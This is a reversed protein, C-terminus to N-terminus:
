QDNQQASAAASSAAQAEMQERTLLMHPLGLKHKCLEIQYFYNFWFEDEEVEGPVLRERVDKLNRDYKMLILALIFFNNMNFRFGFELEEKTITLANEDKALAYVEKRLEKSQTRQLGEWPLTTYIVKSSGSIENISIRMEKLIQNLQNQGQDSEIDEIENIREVYEDELVQYLNKTEEVQIEDAVSDVWSIAGGM